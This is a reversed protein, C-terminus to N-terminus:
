NPARLRQSITNRLWQNAPDQTALSHWIMLVAASAVKIPLARIVVGRAASAIAQPVTALLDSGAVVDVAVHYHSVTVKISRKARSKALQQNVLADAKGTAVAVHAAGIFTQLSLTKGLAPHGERMIVCYPDDFLHTREFGSKLFPLNGIALDVTGAQLAEAYKDHPLKVVEFGVRTATESTRRMLSPLMSSEGADSMLLKFCRDATRPDFSQKQELGNKLISLAENVPQILQRALPTPEMTKPTKIFLEDDFSRRLRTLANSMAPQSLSERRAAASVNRELFIASFARLLNLDLTRINM